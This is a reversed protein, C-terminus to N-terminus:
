ERVFTHIETEHVMAMLHAYESEVIQYHREEDRALKEYVAKVEPDDSKAAHNLYGERNEQELEMALELAKRDPLQPDLAEELRRVLPSAIQAPQALFTEVSGIDEGRYHRFLSAIHQSEEDILTEFAKRTRERKARRAAERYLDLGEKEHLLCQKLVEQAIKKM